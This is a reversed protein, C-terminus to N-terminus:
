KTLGRLIRLAFYVRWAKQISISATHFRDIASRRKLRLNNQHRLVQVYKFTTFAKLMMTAREIQEKKHITEAHM